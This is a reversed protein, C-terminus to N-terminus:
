RPSTLFAGNHGYRVLHQDDEVAHQLLAYRKATRLICRLLPAALATRMM